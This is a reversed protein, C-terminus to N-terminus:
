LWRYDQIALFVNLPEREPLFGRSRLETRIADFVGKRELTFRGLLLVVKSTNTGIAERIELL